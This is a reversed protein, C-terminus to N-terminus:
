RVGQRRTGYTAGMTKDFEGSAMGRKVVDLVYVDISTTGDANKREKTEVNAQSNNNVTVYVNTNSGGGSVGLKGDSGRTLPLVAESGAEGIVSAGTPTNRTIMSNAIYGDKFVDGKASYTIAGSGTSATGEAEGSIFGNLMAIGGGAALLAWGKDDNSKDSDLLLKIGSEILLAPLAEMIAQAVGAMSAAFGEGFTAGEKLSKGLDEFAPILQSRVASALGTLIDYFMSTESVGLAEMLADQWELDKIDTIVVKLKDILEQQEETFDGEDFFEIIGMGKPLTISDALQKMFEMRKIKEVYTQWDEPTGLFAEIADQSVAQEEIETVFGTLIEKIYATYDGKELYERMAEETTYGLAVLADKLTDFKAERAIKDSYEKWDDPTGLFAEFLDTPTEYIEIAKDTAKNLLANIQSVLLSIANENGYATSQLLIAKVSIGQAVSAQQLEDGLKKMLVDLQLQDLYDQWADPGGVFAKILADHNYEAEKVEGKLLEQLADYGNEAVILMQIVEADLHDALTGEEMYKLADKYSIGADTLAVGLEKYSQALDAEMLTKKAEKIGGTIYAEVLATQQKVTDAHYKELSQEDLLKNMEISLSNAFDKLVKLDAPTLDPNLKFFELDETTYIRSTVLATIESSVANLQSQIIEKNSKFTDLGLFSVIVNEQAAEDKIESIRAKTIGLMEDIVAQTAKDYADLDKKSLMVKVPIETPHESVYTIFDTLYKRKNEEELDKKINKLAILRTRLKNLGTSLSSVGDDLEISLNDLASGTGYVLKNFKAKIADADIGLAQRLADTDKNELFNLREEKAKKWSQEAKDWFNDIEKVLIPILKDLDINRLSQATIEGIFETGTSKEIMKRLKEKDPMATLQTIIAEASNTYDEVNFDDDAYMYMTSKLMSYMRAIDILINLEEKLAKPKKFGKDLDRRLQEKEMLLSVAATEANYLKTLEYAEKSLGLYSAEAYTNANTLAVTKEKLDKAAQAAEKMKSHFIAYSVASIAAALVTLALSLKWNFKLALSISKIATGIVITLPGIAATVIGITVILKQSEDNLARFGQSWDIFKELIKKISDTYGDALSALNLKLNDLATSFRGELTTSIEQTMNYFKGGENTLDTLATKIHAFTITNGEVMKFLKEGTVGLNKNLQEIIPVGSMIFRNLERMHVVGRSRVKGFSMAVRELKDSDGQAVDGLRRLEDMVESASSGYALLIQAADDLENLQFPTRASFEVLQEYLRAGKEMNQTLIGFRKIQSEISAAMKVGAAAAGLLATTLYRSLTRGFRIVANSTANMQTSFQKFYQTQMKSIAITNKQMLTKKAEELALKRVVHVHREKTNIALQEAKSERIIAQTYQNAYTNATRKLTNRSSLLTQGKQIIGISAQMHLMEKKALDNYQETYILAEKRIANDNDRAKTELKLLETKAKTLATTHMDITQQLKATYISEETADRANEISIRLADVTRKHTEEAMAVQTNISIRKQEIASLRQLGAVYTDIGTINNTFSYNTTSAGVTGLVQAGQAQTTAIAAKKKELVNLKLALTNKKITNTELAYAAKTSEIVKDYSNEAAIALEKIKLANRHATINKDMVGIHTRTEKIVTKVQNNYANLIVSAEKDIITKNKQAISELKITSANQKAVLSENAKLALKQKTVQIDKEKIVISREEELEALKAVDTTNKIQKTLQGQQTRLQAIKHTTGELVVQQEKQAQTTQTNIAIKASEVASLRNIGETYNNVTQLTNATEKTYATLIATAEKKVAVENKQSATSLKVMAVDKQIAIQSQERLLLQQQLAAAEAKNQVELQEKVLIEAHEEDMTNSISKELKTYEAILEDEADSTKKIAESYWDYTAIAKNVADIKAREIVAVRESGASYSAIAQTNATLQNKYTTLNQVADKLVTSQSQLKISGIDVEKQLKNSALSVGNLTKQMREMTDTTGKASTSLKHMPTQADHIRQQLKDISADVDYAAVKLEKLYDLTKGKDEKLIVFKLTSTETAM